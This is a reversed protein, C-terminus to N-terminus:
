SEVTLGSVSAVWKETVVPCFCVLSIRHEHANERTIRLNGHELEHAKLFVVTCARKNFVIAKGHQPLALEGGKLSLAWNRCSSETHFVLMCSMGAPLDNRDLHVKTAHSVNLAATLFPTGPFPDVWTNIDRLKDKERMMADFADPHVLELLGGLASMVPLMSSVFQDRQKALAKDSRAVSGNRTRHGFIWQPVKENGRAISGDAHSASTASFSSVSQLFASVDVRGTADARRYRELERVPAVFSHLAALKQIARQARRKHGETGPPLMSQMAAVLEAEASKNAALKAPLLTSLLTLCPRQTAGGSGSATPMWLQMAPCAPSDRQLEKGILEYTKKGELVTGRFSPQQPCSDAAMDQYTLGVPPRNLHILATIARPRADDAQFARPANGGGGGANTSAPARSTASHHMGHVAADLAPAVIGLRPMTASPLVRGHQPLAPKAPLVCPANICAGLPALAQAAHAAAAQAMSAAPKLPMLGARPQAPLGCQMPQHTLVADAVDVVHPHQQSTAGSAQRSIQAATFTATAREGRANSSGGPLAPALNAEALKRKRELAQLRNREARLKQEETVVIQEAM